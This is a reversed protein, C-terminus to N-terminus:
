KRTWLLSQCPLRRGLGARRSRSIATASQRGIGAAFVPKLAADVKASLAESTLDPRQVELELSVAKKLVAAYQQKDRNSLATRPVSKAPESKLTQNLPRYVIFEEKSTGELLLSLPPVLNLDSVKFPM